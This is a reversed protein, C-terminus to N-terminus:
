IRHATDEALVFLGHHDLSRAALSACSPKERFGLPSGSFLKSFSELKPKTKFPRPKLGRRLHGLILGAKAASAAGGIAIGSKGVKKSALRPRRSGPHESSTM